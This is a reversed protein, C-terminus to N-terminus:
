YNSRYVVTTKNDLNSLYYLIFKSENEKQNKNFIAYTIYDKNSISGRDMYSYEIKDDTEKFSLLETQHKFQENFYFSITNDSVDLIYKNVGGFHFEQDDGYGVATLSDYDMTYAYSMIHDKMLLEHTQTFSTYALAGFIATLILKKM